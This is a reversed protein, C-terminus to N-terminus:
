QITYTVTFNLKEEYVFPAHYQVYVNGEEKPTYIISHSYNGIKNGYKDSLTYSVEPSGKKQIHIRQGKKVYFPEKASSGGTTISYHKTVSQQSSVSQEVHALAGQNNSWNAASAQTAGNDLLSAGMMGTVGLVGVLIVKKIM